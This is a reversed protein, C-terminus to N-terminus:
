KKRRKSLSSDLRVIIEVTKEFLKSADKDPASDPAFRAFECKNLISDVAEILESSLKLIGLEKLVREQTFESKSLTLKDELYGFVAKSIDEYFQSYDKQELSKNANKLRGKAAKEAKRFKLLEVNGSLKESRMKFLFVAVFVFAPIILSLWFWSKLGSNEAKQTYRFNSIKIFRIDESLLRIDEKSLGGVASDYIKDGVKVNLPFTKTTITKYRKEKPNFFSFSFPGIEKMGSIRPVVLIETKKSGSIVNSRVISESSKPEYMEFGPPLVVEPLDLLKINGRGSLSLKITVAENTKLENKDVSVTFNFDGVAGKFNEPQGALPLPLVEIEARNSKALHEVTERRGFFSDNFFDNFVDRQNNRRKIVVPVKLEFPTITLKGISTPFLAVRKIVASRFREGKYMEINFRITNSTELEESWFGKYSPLKTISPTSIEAKTYLKYTVTVQEGKLVKRRDAEAVIFVSKDLEESSVSQTNKPSGKEVNINLAATSYKKRNYVISAPDIKVVGINLATLIYSYTISSTVRGNIIQMSTSQNPGSLINLGKFSPPSFNRMDNGDGGQFEFFVQFRDNQGVTTKDASIKFSQASIVITMLVSCLLIKRINMM